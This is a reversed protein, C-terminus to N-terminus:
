KAMQTQEIRRLWRTGLTEEVSKQALVLTQWPTVSKVMGVNQEMESLSKQEQLTLALMRVLVRESALAMSNEWCGSALKEVTAKMAFELQLVVLASRVVELAHVVM